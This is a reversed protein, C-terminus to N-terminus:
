RRHVTSRVRSELVRHIEVAHVSDVPVKRIKGADTKVHRVIQLQRNTRSEEFRFDMYLAEEAKGRAPYRLPPGVANSRGLLTLRSFTALDDRPLSHTVRAGLGTTLGYVPKGEALFQEVIQRGAAVRAMAEPAVAVGRGNRAVTALSAPTLGSGTLTLPPLTM